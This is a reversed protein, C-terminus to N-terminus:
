LHEIPLVGLDRHCRGPITTSKFSEVPRMDVAHKGDARAHDVVARAGLFQGLIHEHPHPVLQTLKAPLAGKSRPQMPQRDVDHQVFSLGVLPPHVADLFDLIEIIYQICTRLTIEARPERDVELRRNLEKRWARTAHEDEVVDFAESVFLDSLHESHSRATGLRLEM